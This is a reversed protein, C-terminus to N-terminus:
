YAWPKFYPACPNMWPQHQQSYPAMGQEMPPYVPQPAFPHMPAYHGQEMPIYGEQPMGYYGYSPMTAQEFDKFGQQEEQAKSIDKVKQEGDEKSTSEFLWDTSHDQVEEVEAEVLPADGNEEYGEMDRFEPAPQVPYPMDYGYPMMGGHMEPYGPCAPLGHPSTFYPQVQHHMPGQGRCGCHGTKQPGHHCPSVPHPMCPIYIPQPVPVYEIHTQPVPIYEKEVVVEKEEKKEEKAPQQIQQPIEIFIPQPMVPQPLPMFQPHPIPRQISFQPSFDFHFEKKEHPHMQQIPAPQPVPPIPPIEPVKMEGAPPKMQPKEVPKAKPPVEAKKEKAASDKIKSKDAKEKQDYSPKRGPVDDPLIIEMGPVIYDPNALHANLRKLEEFDIGYQKAIKWLTDGKQVIHTRL